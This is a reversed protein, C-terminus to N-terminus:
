RRALRRLKWRPYGRKFVAVRVHHAVLHKNPPDGTPILKWGARELFETQGTGFDVAVKPAEYGMVILAVRTGDGVLFQTRPAPLGADILALRVVTEKPSFSGGDMLDLAVIARCLDRAGRYRDVLPWVDASTIRTARALADLHPVAIDRPAHRALDLATREPTTVPLGAIEVIEDAEIRANRVVIGNPSRGSRLIMEIDTSDDVWQADHLAAAALGAIVGRRGSWLWAGVTRQSLSPTADKSTYVDPFFAQFNWRLRGRTLVGGALAESGIFVDDM